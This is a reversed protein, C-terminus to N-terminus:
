RQKETLSSANSEKKCVERNRRYKYDDKYSKENYISAKNAKNKVDKKKDM